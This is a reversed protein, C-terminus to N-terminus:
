ALFPSFSLKMIYLLIPLKNFDLDGPTPLAVIPSATKVQANIPLM